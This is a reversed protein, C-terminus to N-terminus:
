ADVVDTFRPVRGMGSAVFVEDLLRTLGPRTPSHGAFIRTQLHEDGSDAFPEFEQAFDKLAALADHLKRADEGSPRTALLARAANWLQARHPAALRADRHVAAGHLSVTAWAQRLRTALNKSEVQPSPIPPALHRRPPTPLPFRIPMSM